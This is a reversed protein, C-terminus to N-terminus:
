KETEKPGGYKVTLTCTMTTLTINERRLTFIEEFNATADILVQAAPQREVRRVECITPQVQVQVSLSDDDKNHRVPLKENIKAEWVDPSCTPWMWTKSRSQPHRGAAMHKWINGTKWTLDLWQCGRQEWLLVPNWRTMRQGRFAWVNASYCLSPTYTSSQMWVLAHSKGQERLQHLILLDCILAINM